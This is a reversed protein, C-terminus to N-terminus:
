MQGGVRLAQSKQFALDELVRFVGGKIIWEEYLSTDHVSSIFSTVKNLRSHLPSANVPQRYM